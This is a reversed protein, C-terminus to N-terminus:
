IRKNMVINSQKEIEKKIYLINPNLITIQLMLSTTSVVLSMIPLTTMSYIREIATYFRRIFVM